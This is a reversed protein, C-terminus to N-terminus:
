ALFASLTINRDRSEALAAATELAAAAHGAYAMLLSREQPLFHYGEPYFVALRGFHRRISKIDVM